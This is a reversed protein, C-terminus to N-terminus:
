ASEMVMIRLLIWFMRCFCLYTKWNKETHNTLKQIGATKWQNREYHDSRSYMRWFILYVSTGTTEGTTYTYRNVTSITSHYLCVGERYLCVSVFLYVASRSRVAFNKCPFSFYFHSNAPGLLLVFAVARIYVFRNMVCERWSSLTEVCM